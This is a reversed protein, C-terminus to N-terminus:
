TINFPIEVLLPGRDRRHAGSTTGMQTSCTFTAHRGGFDLLRPSIIDTEFVPDFAGALRRRFTRRCVAVPRRQHTAIQHEDACRRRIQRHQPHERTPNRYSLVGSPRCSGISGANVLQPYAWLPHVTCSREMLVVGAGAARSSEPRERPASRWPKECIRAQQGRRRMMWATCITPAASHVGEVDPDALLEDYSGHHRNQRHRGGVGLGRRRDGVVQVAAVARSHVM